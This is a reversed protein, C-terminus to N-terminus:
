CDFLGCIVYVTCHCRLVSLPLLPVAGKARHEEQVHRADAARHCLSGEWAEDRAERLGRPRRHRRGAVPVRARLARAVAAAACVPVDANMCQSAAGHPVVACQRVSCRPTVVGVEVPLSRAGNPLSVAYMGTAQRVAMADFEGETIVVSTADAPVTHMGFMGREGGSPMTLQCAKATISRVKFRRARLGAADSATGGDTVTASAPGSSSPAPADNSIWPFVVCEHASWAQSQNERFPQTMAGVMYERLVANDLGRAETSVSAVAFSSRRAVTAVAVRCEAVEICSVLACLAGNLYKLVHPFKGRELLDKSPEVVRQTAVPPRLPTLAAPVARSAV